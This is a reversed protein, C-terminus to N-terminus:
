QNNEHGGREWTVCPSLGQGIQQEPASSSGDGSGDYDEVATVKHVGGFQHLFLLHVSGTHIHFAARGLM